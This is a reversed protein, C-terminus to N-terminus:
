ELAVKEGVDWKHGWCHRRQGDNQIHLRSSIQCWFRPIPLLGGLPLWFDFSNLDLTYQPHPIIGVGKSVLFDMTAKNTYVGVKDHHLCFNWNRKNPRNWSLMISALSWSFTRLQSGEIRTLSKVSLRSIASWKWRLNQGGVGHGVRLDQYTRQITRRLSSKDGYISKLSKFTDEISHGHNYADVITARNPMTMKLLNWFVNLFFTFKRGSIRVWM